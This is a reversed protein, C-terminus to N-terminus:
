RKIKNYINHAQIFTNICKYMENLVSIYRSHKFNNILLSSESIHCALEAAHSNAKCYFNFVSKLINLDNDIKLKTINCIEYNLQIISNYQKNNKCIFWKLESQLVKNYTSNSDQLFKILENTEQQFKNYYDISEQCKSCAM